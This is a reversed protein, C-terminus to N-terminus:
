TLTVLINVATVAPEQNIEVGVVNLNAVAATMSESTVSQSQSVTWSSGSGATITTGVVIDGTTDSITQGIALAGSAVASVTLTTGSISGTFVAGPANNSGVQIDLIQAWAGLAAVPAYFRSALLNSGTRARPGGDGGAFASIIAQQVLTVYNSPVQPGNEIVISFLIELGLLEQFTVSYAPYPPNYAPNEDYITVTTNGNYSCGPPKRSWIAQAIATAEGGAVGVYLSNPNLTVNGITVNTNLANDLVIADIVGPVTLVAGLISPLSGLSNQAVSAARRQEFAARTETNNGLVGSTVQVTDWGPILRFIEVNDESPIPLPGPLLNAFPLTISGGAPIVGQATCMYQYSANDQILAGVPIVVGPLGICLCQLVTPQSPNRTIFYIRAIADQMRGQAFAPDVQNTYYVFTDNVNGIVATESSALQGQPTNLAPNIGGGFAANIDATVGALIEPEPPAIFGLGSNWSVLPVNTSVM